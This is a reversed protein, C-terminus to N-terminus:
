DVGEARGEGPPSPISLENPRPLRPWGWPYMPPAGWVDPRYRGGSVIAGRDSDVRWREDSVVADRGWDSLDLSFLIGGVGDESGAELAIRNIGPRLFTAIGYLALPDDRQQRAGGVRRGNVWLVHWRDVFVKATARAPLRGDLVVDRTAVFAIERPEKVERSYWIWRADGTASLEHDAHARLTALIAAPAVIALALFYLFAFLPRSTLPERSGGPNEM